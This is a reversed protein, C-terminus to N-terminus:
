SLSSRPVSSRVPADEIFRMVILSMEILEAVAKPLEVRENGVLGSFKAENSM